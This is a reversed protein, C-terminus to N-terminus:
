HTLVPARQGQVEDGKLTESGEKNSPNSRKALKKKLQLNTKYNSNQQQQPKTALDDGVRKHGGYVIAWWAGTWLIEWALIGSHITM